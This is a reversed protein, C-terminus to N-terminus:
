ASNKASGNPKRNNVPSSTLIMTVVGIAMGLGVLLLFPLPGPLDEMGHKLNMGFIASLTAIPFFLAALMNLRHAAVTMQHSALAQEEARKAVAFDLAHQAEAHLLEATREVNYARDRFNLVDRDEPVLKRAEQLVQHMNRAARHRPALAELVEFYSEANSASEVERDHQEMLDEYETLNRNLATLGNGDESTSWTGDPQRWYFRGHREDDDPSPPAHLVLLLHGESEMVRQRGVTAGLRRRFIKPVNWIEPLISKPEM